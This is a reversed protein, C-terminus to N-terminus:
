IEVERLFQAAEEPPVTNIYFGSGTEFGAVRTLRPTIQIHWHYYPNQQEDFPSTHLISNFHPRRLAADLRKHAESVCAALSTLQAPDCDEFCSDHRRPLIWLEFPFMPAWPSIALFDENECVVREKMEVEQHIIDCFICREKYQYYEKAGRMEEVIQKPLIPLAILQAHPHALSAGAAEGWNKFVMVYKFRRDHRLDVMRERYARFLNEVSKVPLKSRDLSHNPTEIIIEHAGIGSMRDFFGVGERHLDGEIRLAPFKNPIVRLQWGPTNPLTGPDRIAFIEPPTRHEHGPCFPCNDAGREEYEKTYFDVPRKRRESAIIVWRGDVPDRRLESM